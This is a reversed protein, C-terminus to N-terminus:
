ENDRGSIVKFPEEVNGAARAQDAMEHIDDWSTSHFEANDVPAGIEEPGKLIADGETPRFGDPMVDESFPTSVPVLGMQKMLANPNSVLHRLHNNEQKLVNIDGDMAEMKSILVNMLTEATTGEESM